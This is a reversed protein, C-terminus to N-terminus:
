GNVNSKVWQEDFYDLFAEVLPDKKMRWKAFFLTILYNFVETSHSLQVSKINTDIELRDEKSKISCLKKEYNRMVHVFCMVRKVNGFVNKIGISISEAGDAICAYPQYNIEFVENLKKKLQALVFTFDTNKENVCVSICIPHFHRRMDTNGYVGVPFGHWNLGYTQRHV